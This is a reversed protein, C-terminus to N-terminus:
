VSATELCSEKAPYVTAIKGLKADRFDVVVKLYINKPKGKRKGYFCKTKDNKRSNSIVLPLKIITALMEIDSVKLRHKKDAIHEFRTQYRGKGEFIVRVNDKILIPNHIAKLAAIINQDFESTKQWRCPM